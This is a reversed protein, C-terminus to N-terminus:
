FNHPDPRSVQTKVLSGLHTQYVTLNAFWDWLDKRTLVGDRHNTTTTEYAKNTIILPWWSAEIM